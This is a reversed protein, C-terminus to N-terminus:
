VGVPVDTLPPRLPKGAWGRLARFTRVRLTLAPRCSFRRM